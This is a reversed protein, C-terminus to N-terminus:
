STSLTLNVISGNAGISRATTATGSADNTWSPSAYTWWTLGFWIRIDRNNTNTTALEFELNTTAIPNATNLTTFTMFNNYNLTPWTTNIRNWTQNNFFTPSITELLVGNVKLTMPITEITIDNVQATTNLLLWM